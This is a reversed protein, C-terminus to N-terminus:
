RYEKPTFIWAEGFNKHYKRMYQVCDDRDSSGYIAVAYMKGLTIIKCDIDQYKTTITEAASEANSMTSYSGAVVWHHIDDRMTWNDAVTAVEVSEGAVVDQTHIDEEIDTTLEGSTIDEAVPEVIINEVITEVQKDANTAKDSIASIDINFIAAISVILAIISLTLGVWLMTRGKKRRVVNVHTASIGNLMSLLEKDVEFSKNRLIGVGEITLTSGSRVKELWRSYIDEATATDTGGIVAIADVISCGEAHSSFEITLRPAAVIDRSSMSAAHRVLSLSGVGPLTVERETILRNYIIKNVENVM